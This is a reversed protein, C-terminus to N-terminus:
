WLKWKVIDKRNRYRTSFPSLLAGLMAVTPRPFRGLTELILCGRRSRRWERHTPTRGAIVFGVKILDWINNAIWSGPALQGEIEHLLDANPM